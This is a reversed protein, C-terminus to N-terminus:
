RRRRVAALATLGAFAMAGPGPLPILFIQDQQTESVGAEINSGLFASNRFSIYAADLFANAQSRVAANNSAKLTGGALDLGSLGRNGASFDVASENAIEWIALQFAAANLSSASALGYAADYLSRIMNARDAGMGAGPRPANELSTMTLVGNGAYQTLDTCYTVVTSNVAFRADTGGSQVKWKLEGAAVNSSVGRVTDQVQVAQNLGSSLFQLKVTGASASASVLAAAAVAASYMMTKM